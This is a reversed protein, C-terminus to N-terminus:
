PEWGNQWGIPPPYPLSQVFLEEREYRHEKHRRGRELQFGTPTAEQIEVQGEYAGFHVHSGM